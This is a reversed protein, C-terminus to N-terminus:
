FLHAFVKHIQPYQRDLDGGVDAFFKIAAVEGHELVYQSYIKRLIDTMIKEPKM